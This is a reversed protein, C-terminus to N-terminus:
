TGLSSGRNSRSALCYLPMSSPRRAPSSPAREAQHRCEHRSNWAANLYDSRARTVRACTSHLKTAYYYFMDHLSNEIIVVWLAASLKLRCVTSGRSSSVNELNYNIEREFLRDSCATISNNPKRVAAFGGTALRTKPRSRQPETPRIRIESPSRAIPMGNPDAFPCVVDSAQTYRSSHLPCASYCHAYSCKHVRKSTQPKAGLQKNSLM